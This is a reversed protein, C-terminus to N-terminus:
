ANLVLATKEELVVIVDLYGAGVEEVLIDGSLPAVDELETLELGVAFIEDGDFARAPVGTEAPGVSEAAGLHKGEESGSLIGASGIRERPGDGNVARGEIHRGAGVIEAVIGSDVEGLLITYGEGELAAVVGGGTDTVKLVVRGDDGAGPIIVGIGDGTVDAELEPVIHVNRQVTEM